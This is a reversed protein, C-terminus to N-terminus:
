EVLSYERFVDQLRQEYDDDSMRTRVYETEVDNCALVVDKQRSSSCVPIHVGLIQRRYVHPQAQGYAEQFLLFSHAKLFFYAFKLLVPDRAEITCCDSAFIESDWYAVYGANAGSASVTVCPGNRNSRDHFYAPSKGGAVVPVDGREVEAATISTGKGVAFSGGDGVYDGISVAESCFEPFRWNMRSPSIEMSFSASSFDLLDSVRVKSVFDLSPSIEGTRIAAAVTGSARRDASSYLLGSEDRWKIGKHNRRKSWEYGLIRKQDAAPEPISVLVCDQEYVTGFIVLKESEIALSFDYFKESLLQNQETESLSTFRASRKLRKIEARDEFEAVYNRFYQVDRWFDYLEVGSAFKQFLDLSIDQTELYRDLIKKDEWDALNEARFIAAASDTALKSDSPSGIHKQLFLVVTRTSTESFTHRGLSVLARLSVNEFLLKRARSYATSQNSLVSTPLIVAAHGGPKLLQIIREIFALEIEGGDDSIYDLIGLDNNRLDLHQKFSQVSYPPNAVLIDFNSKELGIGPDDDLGDGYVIKAEGAGNMFLAIKAVRALRYDKEVGYIHKSVWDNDVVREPDVGEVKSRSENLAEVAETLFHGSGCAFDVVNPYDDDTAEIIKELPLSDWIFRSIPVPTFYQGENQKFGENLLKEFMDGLLQDKSRYVIRYNQFLEVMEVLIKGNQLFLKENRVDKFAFENGSYFKLIRFTRELDRIAEERQQGTYNRFLQDPYDAPVYAVDERMFKHMGDRYLRQLRDQLREYSDAGVRYQFDLDDSDNKGTEDALKCIFLAILKNFANERDSINNHRLIEEFQGIINAEVDFEKLDRKRLPRVGIQYPRADEEFIGVNLSRKNYTESWTQFLGDTSTADRYLDISEDSKGAAIAQPDDFVPIITNRYDIEGNNVRSAYLCLWKTSTEQQKYSFLQGGDRKLNGLEKKYENGWTKCEIIILTDVGNEDYVFVDARGGKSTHGLTWTKELEIHSPQYGKDLLRVVCELVVFNEWQNFSLVQKRNVKLSKPYEIVRHKVDVKVVTRPDEGFHKVYINGSQEFSMAKLLATIEIKM